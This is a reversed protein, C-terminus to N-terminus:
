SISYTIPVTITQAPTNAGFIFDVPLTDSAGASLSFLNTSSTSLTFFGSSQSTGDIEVQLESAATPDQTEYTIGTPATGLTASLMGATGGTNTLTVASNTGYFPTTTSPAISVSTSSASVSLGSPSTLTATYISTSSSASSVQTYGIAYSFLFAFGTYLVRKILHKM